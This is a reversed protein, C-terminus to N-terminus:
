KIKSNFLVTVKSEVLVNLENSSTLQLVRSQDLTLFEESQCLEVFHRKAFDDAARLLDM